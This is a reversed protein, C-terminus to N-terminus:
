FIKVETFGNSNYQRDPSLETHMVNSNSHIFEFQLIEIAHM